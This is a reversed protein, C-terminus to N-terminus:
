ICKRQRETHIHNHAQTHTHVYTHVHTHTHALTLRPQNQKRQRCFPSLCLQSCSACVSLLTSLSLLFVSCPPPCVSVPPSPLLLLLLHTVRRATPQTHAKGGARETQGEEGAEQGPPEVQVSVGNRRDFRAGKRPEAVQPLISAAGQGPHRLSAPLLLHTSSANGKDRQTYTIIHRHTHTYM